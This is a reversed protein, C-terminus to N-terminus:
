AAAEYEIRGNRIAELFGSEALGNRGSLADARMLDALWTEVVLEFAAGSLGEPDVGAREFYSGFIPRADIEYAPQVVIPEIGSRKWLYLRDPTVMLFFETEPFGGHALVNRRLQAAWDGSTGRRNKVEAVARLQGDRSFLELDVLPSM